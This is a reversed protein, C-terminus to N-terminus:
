QQSQDECCDRKSGNTKIVAECFLALDEDSWVYRANNASFCVLRINNEIYGVDQKIRDVTVTRAILGTGTKRKEM